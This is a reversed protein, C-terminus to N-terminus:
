WHEILNQSPFSIWLQFAFFEEQLCYMLLFFGASIILPKMDYDPVAIHNQKSTNLVQLKPLPLSVHFTNLLVSSVSLHM